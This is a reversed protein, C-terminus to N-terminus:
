AIYVLIFHPVLTCDMLCILLIIYPFHLSLALNYCRSCLTSVSVVIAYSIIDDYGKDKEKSCGPPM